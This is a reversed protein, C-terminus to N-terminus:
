NIALCKWMMLARAESALQFIEKRSYTTDKQQTVALDHCTGPEVHDFYM